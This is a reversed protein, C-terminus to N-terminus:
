LYREAFSETFLIRWVGGHGASAKILTNDPNTLFQGVENLIMLDEQPILTIPSYDFYNERELGELLKSDIDSTTVIFLPISSSGKEKRFKHSDNHATRLKSIIIMINGLLENIRNTTVQYDTTM